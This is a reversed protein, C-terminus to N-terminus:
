GSYRKDKYRKLAQLGTFDLVVALILLGEQFFDDDNDNDDDCRRRCEGDGSCELRKDLGASGFHGGTRSTM